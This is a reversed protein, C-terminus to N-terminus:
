IPVSPMDFLRNVIEEEPIGARSWKHIAISIDPGLLNNNRAYIGLVSGGVLGVVLAALPLPNVDWYM